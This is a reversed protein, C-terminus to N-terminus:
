RRRISPARRPPASVIPAACARSIDNFASSLSISSASFRPSSIATASTTPVIWVTRFAARDTASYM